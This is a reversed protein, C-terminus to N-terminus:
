GAAGALRMLHVQINSRLDCLNNQDCISLAGNMKVQWNHANLLLCAQTKFM